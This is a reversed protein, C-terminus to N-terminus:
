PSLRRILEELNSSVERTLVLFPTALEAATSGVVLGDVAEVDVSAVVAENLVVASGALRAFLYLM